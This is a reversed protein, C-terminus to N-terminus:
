MEAEIVYTGSGLPLIRDTVPKGNLTISQSYAMPVHVVATTNAPLVCRYHFKGAEIKWSSEVRGYVSDYHGKAWTLDGVPTPSLTFVVHGQEPQMTSGNLNIGVITGTFWEQIHGFMCHNMSTGPGDWTESLTKMGRERLMYGYGPKDTRHIMKWLVDNRNSEVLARILRVFSVEGLTPRDNESEIKAVLQDVIDQKRAKEDEASSVVFYSEALASQSGTSYTNAQPDYYAALFAAKANQYLDHSEKDNNMASLKRANDIFISTATLEGPTHQSHGAHGKEETWDYWDGLGKAVLGQENRTSDLYAVYRKMTDRQRGIINRDGYYQYLLWPIQVSASGWEPSHFFGGQFRTYEPAICPILGNELQSETMDQCIKRYLNHINYRSMISPGMLHAVELWGLKERHPCDTLVSALNSRVSRDIMLDIENFLENSCEFAGVIEASSTTFDAQASVLTPQDADAATRDEELVAGEIYLFQFSFYTFKPLLLEEEDSRLTLTYSHGNWVRNILEATKVTASQGPKGKLLVRPRGSFNYGFDAVYRGDPLRTLTEPQKTAAVIMPPAEQAQFTASYGEARPVITAHTWHADDFGPKDWGDEIRRNDVDEGGYVCSFIIPGLSAKWSEDSGIVQERGDTYRVHLQAIMEPLGFSGTFKVYRGGPVNYMGNGLLVGLANNGPKLSDTLDFSVYLRTKHYNTWGPDIFHDGVKEGNLHLDFHGLGCIHVIATEIKKTPDIDFSKRFIPLPDKDTRDISIWQAKWDDPRLIGTTFSAPKKLLSIEGRNNKVEVSWHYRTSSRLKKGAYPIEISQASEVWGSDWRDEVTIRYATQQTNPTPDSLNWSFVIRDENIGVPEVRNNVRPNVIQTEAFLPASLLVFVFFAFRLM